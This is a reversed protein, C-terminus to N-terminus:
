AVALERREITTSERSQLLGGYVEVYDAAMELGSFTAARERAREGLVKAWAPNECLLQLQSSWLDPRDPPIFIAVDHWLERMSPVDGLVLACGAAAATLVSYSFPEYLVPAALVSAHTVAEQFGEDSLWGLCQTKTLPINEGTQPDVTDGSIYIPWPVQDAIAELLMVNRGEDWCRGASLIYPRKEGVLEGSFDRGHRVMQTPTKFGYNCYLTNLTHRTAAVIKTAANLGLSVRRHYERYHEPVPLGKVAQWWSIACAQATVLVPVKWPLAAFPYSNVHVIDPQFRNALRMLWGGARNVDEWPAEMWSLKGPLHSWTLDPLADLQAVQSPRLEGGTVALLVKIKLSQLYPILTLIYCWATGYPDVTILVRNPRLM